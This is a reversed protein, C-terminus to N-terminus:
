TRTSEQLGLIYVYKGKSNDWVYSMIKGRNSGMGDPVISVHVWGSNPGKAPNYCECILQDFPLNDRVWEALKMTTLKPIEIDCAQGKTHQSTSRWTDPKNKLARELLQSRFVSNPTFPGFKDRVPQLINRCLYVASKLQNLNKFWNDIANRDATESKILEYARFNKSIKDQPDSEMTFDDGPLDVLNAM